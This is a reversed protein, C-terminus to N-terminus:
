LVVDVAGLILFSPEGIFQVTFYNKKATVVM